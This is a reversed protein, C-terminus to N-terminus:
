YYSNNTFTFTSYLRVLKPFDVLKSTHEFIDGVTSNVRRALSDVEKWLEVFQGNLVTFYPSYCGRVLANCTVLCLPATREVCKTCTSATIFGNVCAPIVRADDTRNKQSMIFNKIKEMALLTSNFLEVLGTSMMALAEEDIRESTTRYICQVESDSLELTNFSEQVIHVLVNSMNTMVVECLDSHRARGSLVQTLNRVSIEFNEANSSTTSALVHVIDGEFSHDDFDIIKLLIFVDCGM